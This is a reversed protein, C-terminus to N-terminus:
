RGRGVLQFHVEMGMGASLCALDKVTMHKGQDFLAKRRKAEAVERKTPKKIKKVPESM